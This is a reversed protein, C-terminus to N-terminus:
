ARRCGELVEAFTQLRGQAQFGGESELLRLNQNRIEFSVANVSVRLRDNWQKALELLMSCSKHCALIRLANRREDQYKAGLSIGM